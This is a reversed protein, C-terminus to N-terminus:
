TFGIVVAKMTAKLTTPLLLIRYGFSFGIYSSLCILSYLNSSKLAGTIFMLFLALNGFIGFWLASIIRQTLTPFLERYQTNPLLLIKYGFIWSLLFFVLWLLPVITFRLLLLGNPSQILLEVIVEIISPCLIAAWIGATCRTILYNPQDAPLLFAIHM